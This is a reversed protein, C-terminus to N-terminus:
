GAGLTTIAFLLAGVVCVTVALFSWTLRGREFGRLRELPMTQAPLSARRPRIYLRKREASRRTWLGEVACWVDGPPIISKQPHILRSLALGGLIGVLVPGISMTIAKLSVSYGLWAAAPPWLWLFAISFAVSVAWPARVGPKEDGEAKAMLSLFRTMLLATGLSSLMLFLDLWSPGRELSKLAGKALAGSTLPAGALAMAPLVLMAIRLRRPWGVFSAPRAVSGMFLAAKAFGHHLAFLLTAAVATDSIVPGSTLGVGIAVLGMQSISSYGLLTKADSQVVGVAVGYLATVCGLLVIFEGATGLGDPPIFRLAGLLGVKIMAGSLVASAPAPAAPHALPLWFHVPLLGAKIALGLGALALALAPPAFTPGFAAGSVAAALLSGAFLALEGVVVLGIYVGAARHSAAKRDHAILGYAAFSMVGFGTYFTVVDQAVAVGFNGAMTLLFFTAYANRRADRRLYYFSHWAAVLYLLAFLVLFTRGIPDLGVHADLMLWTLPSVGEGVLVAALLAPVPALLCLGPLWPRTVPFAALAAFALPTAPALLVLWELGSM